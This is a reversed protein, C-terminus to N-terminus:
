KVIRSAYEAVHMVGWPGAVHLNAGRVNSNIHTNHLEAVGSSCAAAGDGTSSLKGLWYENGPLANGDWAYGVVLLTGRPVPDHLSRKSFHIVVDTGPFVEGDRVGQCAEAGIWSFDIHAVHTVDSGKLADGWADVFLADQQHSARWVGLGLGVVHVYAKLGAAKTRSKAEALLTEATLQMRAKYAAVNLRTTKNVELFTEGPAAAEWLPLTMGWLRAWLHQLHQREGPPGYGGQRTNQKPTVVCDQWEMVGAKKLRAGVMGVIVGSEQFSGAAGPVGKNRRSGDNIFFSSSSVSLLASLKVEDYSLYDKLCLPPAEQESGIKEFGGRGHTGDRLLYQDGRGFFTVPRKLLLRDVLGLLSLGKYVAKEVRTGNSAKFDLFAALLPLCRHHLLPYASNFQAEM